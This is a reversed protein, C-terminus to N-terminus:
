GNRKKKKEKKPVVYNKAILKAGGFVPFELKVLDNKELVAYCQKVRESSLGLLKGAEKENVIGKKKVLELLRDFDTVIKKEQIEKMKGTKEEEKKMEGVTTEAFTKDRIIETKKAYKREIADLIRDFRKMLDQPSIFEFEKRIDGESINNKKMTKVIKEEMQMATKDKITPAIRKVIGTPKISAELKEPSEIKYVGSPGGGGFYSNSTFEKHFTKMAQELKQKSSPTHKVAEEIQEEQVTKLEPKGEIEKVASEKMPKPRRKEIEITKLEEDYEFLKKRYDEENIQRHFFAKKLNKIKEKTKEIEFNIEEERKQQMEILEKKSPETKGSVTKGTIIQADGKISVLTKEKGTTFEEHFQKVAKKKKEGLAQERKKKLEEEPTIFSIKQRTKRKKKKLQVNKEKKKKRTKNKKKETETREEAPTIEETEPEEEARKKEKETKKKDQM